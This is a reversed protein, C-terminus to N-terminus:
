PVAIEDKVHRVGNAKEADAVAKERFTATPLHGSLTVVGHDVSLGVTTFGDVQLNARVEDRISTDDPVASGRDLSACSSLSIALAM